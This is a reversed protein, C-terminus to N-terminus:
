MYGILESITASGAGYSNIYLQLSPNSGLLSTEDFYVNELDIEVPEFPVSKSATNAYVYALQVKQSSGRTGDENKKYYAFNLTVSTAKGSSTARGRVSGTIRIKKFKFTQDNLYFFSYTASGNSEGFSIVGPFVIEAPMGGSSFPVLTDAGASEDYKYYGPNGDADKGFKVGGTQRFILTELSVGSESVDIDGKEGKPIVFDFVAANSTGSNTVSAQTGPEGTTVTGVSITAAQGDLGNEGRSPKGTDKGDIVWNGNEGITPVIASVTTQKVIEIDELVVYACDNNKDSSGDKSYTAVITHSGEVLVANHTLEDGNGSIANAITNGDLTLTFKDYSAESSVRYKLSYAVSQPIDITWTTTASSSAKGQNNSTWKTGEKIFAYTGNSTSEWPILVKTNVEDSGDIGGKGDAGKLNPTTITGEKTTINLKYISENNEANETISPSFGDIGDFYDVGKQPTYGDIGKLSALWEEETGEFGYIVAIEYASLGDAGSPINSVAQNVINQVEETKSYDSLIETTKEESVYGADNEFSSINKPVTVITTGGGNMDSLTRRSSGLYFVSNQPETIYIDAKSLLYNGNIGHPRSVVPVYECIDLAEVDEDTLNLDVAKIEYTEKLTVFSGFLKEKAKKLLNAPLTVDEWASESDPAYIIGYEAAKEENVIYNKGDNVSSIDIKVGDVEAGVPRIATYTETADVESSLDIMNKAFEISQGSVANYDALWDIYDGDAEYRIRIHGGLSSKFCKDKLADWSNLVNESSRVIYDNPDTVTVIGIKFQQWEMVKSNHNEVIMKFLEDPRGSFSFPDLYSDNFFALKGEVEVSKGNYFDKKDSIVRGKFITRGNRIVSVVPYLKKITNYNLNSKYIKFSLSGAASDELTLKPSILQLNPNQPHYIQRDGNKIIIM